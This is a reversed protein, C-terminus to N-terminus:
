MKNVIQATRSVLRYLAGERVERARGGIKNIRYGPLKFSNRVDVSM